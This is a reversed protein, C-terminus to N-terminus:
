IDTKKEAFHIHFCVSPNKRYHLFKKKVLVVRRSLQSPQEQIVITKREREERERGKSLRTAM